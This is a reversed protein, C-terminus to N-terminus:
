AFVQGNSQTSHMFRLVDGLRAQKGELTSYLNAAHENTDKNNKVWSHFSSELKFREPFVTNYDTQDDPSYITRLLPLFDKVDVVVGDKDKKINQNVMQVVPKHEDKIKTNLMKLTSNAVKMMQSTPGSPEDEEVNSELNLKKFPDDVSRVVIASKHIYQEVFNKQQAATYRRNNYRQKYLVYHPDDGFSEDLKKWVNSM